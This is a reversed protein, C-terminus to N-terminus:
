SPLFYDFYDDADVILENWKASKYHVALAWKNSNELYNIYEQLECCQVSTDLIWGYGHMCRRNIYQVNIFRVSQKTNSHRWLTTWIHDQQISRRNSPMYKLKRIQTEKWQNWTFTLDRVSCESTAICRSRDYTTWKEVGNELDTKKKRWLVWKEKKNWKKKTWKNLACFMNVVKNSLAAISYSVRSWRDQEQMITEKKKERESNIPTEGVMGFAYSIWSYAQFMWTHMARHHFQSALLDTSPKRESMFSRKHNNVRWWNRPLRCNHKEIFLSKHTKTQQTIRALSSFLFATIAASLDITANTHACSDIGDAWELAKM